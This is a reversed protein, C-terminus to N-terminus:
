SATSPEPQGRQRLWWWLSSALPVFALGAGVLGMREYGVAAFVVGSGLSALASALGIFLDNLGQTRAREAVLLQDSLLTSGGVFCFNWGLGLLFLAAALPIVEPSLTAALSAAILALAGAIIVPARGWRDTLWGSVISFAYMGFTHSSIVLSISTLAHHHHAMHLATIVMLMVMVAQGFVMATIATAVGPERLITGLPRAPGSKTTDPYRKAIELALQKPEPRLFVAVIVAALAFMIMSLAYPGTLEPVGLGQSWLGMPGVMLPGVVAGVTGGIVVNAVARGRRSPAQVEAAAFRSLQLAAHAAGMLVLGALLLPFSRVIVAASAAGAGVVGTLLGLTLGGRRGTVDMAAGWLSAALASGLLFVASPLGAWAPVGSLEAGVIAAVTASAIFGASGLGQAAFLTFTITRADRRFRADM